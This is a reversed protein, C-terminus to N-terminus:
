RRLEDEANLMREEVEDMKIAAVKQWEEFVGSLRQEQIRLLSLRSRIQLYFKNAIYLFALKTITCLLTSGQNLIHQSASLDIKYINVQMFYEIEKYGLVQRLVVYIYM